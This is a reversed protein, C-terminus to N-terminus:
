VETLDGTSDGVSDIPVGARLLLTFLLNGLPTRDPYRVHQHGKITGGGGGLVLSPLPFNNHVNSNSMNSGYLFISNDLISGGDGEPIAALKTMFDAFV